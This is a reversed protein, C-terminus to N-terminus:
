TPSCPSRMPRDAERRRVGACLFRSKATHKHSQDRCKAQKDMGLTVPPLAIFITVHCLLVNEVCETLVPRTQSREAYLPDPQEARKNAAFLMRLAINIQQHLELRVLLCEVGEHLSDNKRSSRSDCRTSSTVMSDSLGYMPGWMRLSTSYAARAAQTDADCEPHPRIDETRSSLAHALSRNRRSAVSLRAEDLANLNDALCRLFHRRVQLTRCGLTSHRAIAPM